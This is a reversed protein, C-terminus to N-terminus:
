GQDLTDLFKEYVKVSLPQRRRPMVINRRGAVRIPPERRLFMWVGFERTDWEIIKERAFYISAGMLGIPSQSPIQEDAEEAAVVEEGQFYETASGCEM